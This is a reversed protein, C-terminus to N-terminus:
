YKDQEDHGHTRRKVHFAQATGARQSIAYKIVHWIQKTYSQPGYGAARRKREDKTM